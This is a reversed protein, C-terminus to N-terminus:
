EQWYESFVEAGARWCEERLAAPWLYAGWVSDSGLDGAQALRFFFSGPLLFMVMFQAVMEFGGVVEPLRLGLCQHAATGSAWGLV